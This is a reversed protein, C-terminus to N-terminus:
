DELLSETKEETVEAVEKKPTAKKTRRTTKKPAPSTEQVEIVGRKILSQLSSDEKWDDSIENVGDVLLQGRYKFVKSQVKLKSRDFKIKM